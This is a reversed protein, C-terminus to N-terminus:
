ALSASEKEFSQLEHAQNRLERVLTVVGRTAQDPTQGQLRVIEALAGDLENAISALHAEVRDLQISVAKLKALRNELAARSDQMERQIIVDSANAIQQDLNAMDTELNGSAQSVIRYNELASMRQCSRYAQDTIANVQVQIPQFTPRLRPDASSIANFIAVQSREIRDFAGQLRQALPARKGVAQSLRLTPDHMLNVIMVAVCLLGIPFLWWAACLGAAISFVLMAIVLPNLVSLVIPHRM